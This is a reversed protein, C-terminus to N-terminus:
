HKVPTMHAHGDAYGITNSGGHRGPRPLSSLDGNANRSLLNSDFILPFEAPEPFLDENKGSATDRYAYGYRDGKFGVAQDHYMFENKTYPYITDMWKEAKPLRNDYDDAYMISGLVTQKVNSLCTIHRTGKTQAFVPFLIAALVLVIVVCLTVEGVRRATTYQTYTKPDIRPYNGDHNDMADV